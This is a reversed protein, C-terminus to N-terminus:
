GKQIATKLHSVIYSIQDDTLEPYMPLSLIKSMSKHAVPFDSASGNLYKYATLFPLATPYHVGTHIGNEQLYKQVSERNEVQIVYLHYAHTSYSATVPSKIGAESLLKDYLAARSQRKQIWGSLHPLKALLISAQLGDLRSNRGELGHDHKGLRGHDGIMKCVKALEPDKMVMGGADGYAGLNKSPFFSYSAIDGFTGIKKGRYTAGHAQACDEIVRLSHRAAIAMIEDMEAPLGYLHVPIIAKTKKTVKKEILTPDITYKDQIVDVFVVRAGVATVAEATSIWTHSPVIVEDGQGIGLARLGIELSDTGNACGVCFPMECFSAYAKEFEELYRGKIYASENIVRSIANDIEEKISEYQAKLDVFEIKM